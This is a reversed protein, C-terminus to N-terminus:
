KLALIVEKTVDDVFELDYGKELLTWKFANGLKAKAYFNPKDQQAFQRVDLVLKTLAKARKNMSAKETKKDLVPYGESFTEALRKGFQKAKSADFWGIVM